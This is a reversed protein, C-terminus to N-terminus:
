WNGVWGAPRQPKDPAASQAVRASLYRCARRLQAENLEPFAARLRRADDDGYMWGSLGPLQVVARPEGDRGAPRFVVSAGDIAAAVEAPLVGENADQAQKERKLWGFM